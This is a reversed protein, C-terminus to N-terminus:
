EDVEDLANEISELPKSIINDEDDRKSDPAIIKEVARFPMNLIRVPTSLIKGLLGM